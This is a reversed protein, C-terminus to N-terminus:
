EYLQAHNIKKSSGQILVYHWELSFIVEVWRFYGRIVNEMTFINELYM